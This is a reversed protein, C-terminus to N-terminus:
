GGWCRWGGSPPALSRQPVCGVGAVFRGGSTDDVCARAVGRGPPATSVGVRDPRRPFATARVPWDAGCVVSPAFAGALAQPPGSAPPWRFHSPEPHSGSDSTHVYLYQKVQNPNRDYRMIRFRTTACPFPECLFPPGLPENESSEKPQTPWHVSIAM